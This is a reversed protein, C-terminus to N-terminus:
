YIRIDNASRWSSDWNPLNLDDLSAAVFDRWVSPWKLIEKFVAQRTPKTPALWVIPKSSFYYMTIVTIAFLSKGKGTAHCVLLRKCGPGNPHLMAAAVAQNPQLDGVDEERLLRKCASYAYQNFGQMGPKLLGDSWIHFPYPRSPYLWMPDSPQDDEIDDEDQFGSCSQCWHKFTSRVVFFIVLRVNKFHFVLLSIKSGIIEWRGIMLKTQLLM